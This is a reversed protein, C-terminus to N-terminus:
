ALVTRRILSEDIGTFSQLGVAVQDPALGSIFAELGAADLTPGSWYIHCLERADHFHDAGGAIEDVYRGYLMCESFHRKRAVAKIWHVGQTEEIRKQMARVTDTRWAILTAIYDHQPEADAPLGLARGAQRAWSTQNEHGPERLRFDRRFLRLNGGDWMRACDFPQVFAVDSDCYVLSDEDVHGAIAIRRLQQVHWGRLPPTHRSLWIRRRFLSSPDPLDMLWSPLIEGESVVTRRPGEFQRFLRRDRDSVLLIHRTHGTVHRDMTDCLIRAREVDGKYSATVLAVTKENKSMIPTM